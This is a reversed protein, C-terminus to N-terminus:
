PVLKSQLFSKVRTKPTRGYKEMGSTGNNCRQLELENLELSVLTCSVESRSLTAGLFIDKLYNGTLHFNLHGIFCAKQKVNSDIRGNECFKGEIWQDEPISEAFDILEQISKM